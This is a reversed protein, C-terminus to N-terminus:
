RRSVYPKYPKELLIEKELKYLELRILTKYSVYRKLNPHYVTENIKEDFEKVLKKRGVESLFVGGTSEEYFDIDNLMKLRTLKLFVRDCVLPKFIESVDLSLSTRREFPEHLFSLAPNLHTSFIESSVTSYMLSNLFSIIANAKNEPPRRSRKIIKFQEPVKEDIMKFYDNKINGEIGMLEPISSSKEIEKLRLNVTNMGGRKLVINMNKAEGIIIKRAIVLRKEIDACIQAQKKILNGSILFDEPLFSGIYSGYMSYIFVPINKKALLTLAPKTFTLNSYVVISEASEIPISTEGNSNKLTISDGNKELTGSSIIYYTQM